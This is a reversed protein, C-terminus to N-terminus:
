SRMHRLALLAVLFADAEASNRISDWDAFAARSSEVFERAELRTFRRAANYDAEHRAQQLDMFTQAIFRLQHSPPAAVAAALKEPVKASAFGRCAEKMATHDFARRLCDRLSQRSAPLLRSVGEDILLHFLAYYAASIARRLSVQKPRRSERRSLELAQELLDSQLTM